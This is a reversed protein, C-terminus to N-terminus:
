KALLLVCFCFNSVLNQESTDRSAFNQMAKNHKRRKCAKFPHRNVMLFKQMTHKRIHKESAPYITDVTIAGQDPALTSTYKAYIDNQFQLVSKPSSDLMAQVGSQHFPRRSLLLVAKEPKATYRGLVAMTKTRDSDSLVREIEFGKFPDAAQASGPGSLLRTVM